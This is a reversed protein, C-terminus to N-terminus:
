RYSTDPGHELSAQLDEMNALRTALDLTQRYRPAADLIIRAAAIRAAPPAAPDTLIDELAALAQAVAGTIHRTADALVDDLGRGIAAQVRPDNMYTYATRDSVGAQRAAEATTRTALVASVFHAQRATLKTDTM